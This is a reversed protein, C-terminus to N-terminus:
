NKQVRQRERTGDSSFLCPTYTLSPRFQEPTMKLIFVLDPMFLKLAHLPMKKQSLHCIADTFNM